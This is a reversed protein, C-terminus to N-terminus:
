FSGGDITGNINDVTLDGSASIHGSATVHGGAGLEFVPTSGSQFQLTKPSNTNIHKIRYDLNQGFRLEQHDGIKVHVAGFALQTANASFLTNGGNFKVAPTTSGFELNDNLTIDGSSSINGSSTVSQALVYGDVQLGTSLNQDGRLTATQLFSSASLSGNLTVDGGDVLFTSEATLTGDGDSTLIRNAGDDTIVETLDLTLTRASSGNFNVAGGSLDVGTGVTLANSFGNTAVLATDATEAHSASVIGILNSGNGSMSLATITGSASINGSATFNTAFSATDASIAHSSSLEFTIEHSASVAFLAHSATVAHSSSVPTFISGTGDALNTGDTQVVRQFTDQINKGEFNEIAM